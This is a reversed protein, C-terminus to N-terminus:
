LLSQGYELVKDCVQDTLKQKLGGGNLDVKQGSNGGLIGSLGEAYGSDSQAKSQGGLQGLLKDQLSTADGGLFKNKACFGLIGAINGTGVSDLSPLSGGALGSLGSLSGLGGGSGSGGGLFSGGSSSGQSSAGGLAGKISDM